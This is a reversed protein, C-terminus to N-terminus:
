YRTNNVLMPVAANLMIISPSWNSPFSLGSGADYSTANCLSFTFGELATTSFAGSPTLDALLAPIGHMTVNFVDGRAIDSKLPRIHSFRTNLSVLEAPFNLLNTDNEM